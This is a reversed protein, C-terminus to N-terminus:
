QRRHWLSTQMKRIDLIDFNFRELSFGKFESEPDSKGTLFIVPIDRTEPDAKLKQIAEFGGVEPMDIDLLIQHPRKRELMDFMKAASPVTFVDCADALANKAIKLNTINDDVIMVTPRADEM